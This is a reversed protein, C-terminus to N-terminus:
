VNHTIDKLERASLIGTDLAEQLPRSLPANAWSIGLASPRHQNGLYRALPMDSLEHGAFQRRFEIAAKELAEVKLYAVMLDHCIGRWEADTAVALQAAETARARFEEGSLVGLVLDIADRKLYLDHERSSSSKPLLTQPSMGNLMDKALRRVSLQDDSLEPAATGPARNAYVEQLEAIVALRQAGYESAMRAIEASTAIHVDATDDTRRAM